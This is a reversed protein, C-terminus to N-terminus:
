VSRFTQNSAESISQRARTMRELKMLCVRCFFARAQCPHVLPTDHEWCACPYSLFYILGQDPDVVGHEAIHLIAVPMYASAGDTRLGAQRCPKSKYVPNMITRARFCPRSRWRYRCAGYVPLDFLPERYWVSFGFTNEGQSGPCETSLMQLTEELLRSSSGISLRCNFHRSCCGLM